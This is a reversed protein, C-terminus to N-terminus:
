ESLKESLVGLAILQNRLDNVLTVAESETTAEDAVAPRSGGLQRENAQYVRLRGLRVSKGAESPGTAGFAVKTSNQGTTRPIFCFAYNVWGMDRPPVEVCRRWHFTSSGDVVLVYVRDAASGINPFAADFEVWTPMGIVFPITLPLSSAASASTMTLNVADSGGFADTEGSITASTPNLASIKASLIERFSASSGSTWNRITKARQHLGQPDQWYGLGNANSAAFPLASETAVVGTFPGFLSNSTIRDPVVPPNRFQIVYSPQGGGLVNNHVQISRINPTTSYIIPHSSDGVGYFANQAINHGAVHKTSDQGLEPFMAGNSAGPQEDAYLIRFDGPMLNENGFKCGTITLGTGANVPSLDPTIWVSARPGGSNDQSFQLLDTRTIHFNNGRRAKIHVRNRLFSCSDIVCQDTGPALAVGISATTNASAFVCDRIRWYPMDVSETAIACETYDMFQCNQVLYQGAVNIGTHSHKIAGKGGEFKIESLLLSPLFGTYNLFYSLPGLAITTSTNAAGIIAPSYASNLGLGSYRYTGPPFFLTGTPGAAAFADEIATTDDTTGDGVAGFERVNTLTISSAPESDAKSPPAMPNAIPALAAGILISRRPLNSM